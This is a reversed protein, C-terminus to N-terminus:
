TKRSLCRSAIDPSTSRGARIIRKSHDATDSVEFPIALSQLVVVYRRIKLPRVRAAPPQYIGIM